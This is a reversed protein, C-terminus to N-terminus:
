QIEMLIKSYCFELEGGFIPLLDALIAVFIASSKSFNFKRQNTCEHGVLREVQSGNHTLISFTEISANSKPNNLLPVDVNLTAPERCPM